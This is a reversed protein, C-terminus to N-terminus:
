TKTHELTEQAHTNERKHWETNHVKNDKITAWVQATEITATAV